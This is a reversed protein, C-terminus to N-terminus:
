IFVIKPLTEWFFKWIHGIKCKIHADYNHSVTMNRIQSETPVNVTRVCVIRILYSNLLTVVNTELSFFSM